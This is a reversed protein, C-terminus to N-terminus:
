KETEKSLINFLYVYAEAWKECPKYHFLNRPLIFFRNEQIARLSNWAPNEEFSIRLFAEAKDSAGMTTVFIFDPDELIIKELSIDELLGTKEDAINVCGLDQLMAGTADTRSSRSSVKASSARLLLIRPSKSFTEKATKVTKEIETQVSLVNKEFATKNHLYSSYLLRIAQIISKINIAVSFINNDADESQKNIIVGVVKNNELSILATGAYDEEISITHLLKFGLGSNIKGKSIKEGKSDKLIYVYNSNNVNEDITLFDIGDFEPNKLEIFTIDLFPDSFCFHEKPVLSLKTESQNFSLTIISNYLINTNLIQNSTILGRMQDNSEPIPLVLLFGKGEKKQSEFIYEINCTSNAIIKASQNNFTNEM